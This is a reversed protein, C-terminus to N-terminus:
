EIVHISQSDVLSAVDRIHLVGNEVWLVREGDPSVTPSVIYNETEYVSSVRDQGIDYLALGTAGDKDYGFAYLDTDPYVKRQCSLAICEFVMRGTQRGEADYRTFITANGSPSGDFADTIELTFFGDRYWLFDLFDAQIPLTDTQALIEGDTDCIVVNQYSGAEGIATGFLIKDGQDSFKPNYPFLIKETGDENALVSAEYIKKDQTGDTDDFDHLYVALDDQGVYMMRNNKLDVFPERAYEDGIEQISLIESDKVTFIESGTFVTDMGDNSHYASLNYAYDVPSDDRSLVTVGGKNLDYVAVIRERQPKNKDRKVGIIYVSTGNPEICEIGTADMAELLDIQLDTPKPEEPSPNSGCAAFMVALCVILMMWKRM